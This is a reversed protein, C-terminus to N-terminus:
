TSPNCHHALGGLTSTCSPMLWDSGQQKVALDFFYFLPHVVLLATNAPHRLCAKISQHDPLWMLVAKKEEACSDVRLFDKQCCCEFLFIVWIQPM